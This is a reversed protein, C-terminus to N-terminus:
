KNQSNVINNIRYILVASIIDEDSKALSGSSYVLSLPEQLAAGDTSNRLYKIQKSYVPFTGPRYDQFLNTPKEDTFSTYGVPTFPILKGILTTKWFAETYRNKDIYKREDLGAITMFTSAKSEDGGYGLIYFTNNGILIPQAVVYVLIYDARLNSAALNIGNLPKDMFMKAIAAIRTQNITANDALTTRNGLTTIWYGYDWWAAIVAHKPTHKSVWDLAEIWDQTQFTYGSGGNLITPPLDASTKWSLDPPYLLPFILILITLIVYVAKVAKKRNLPNGDVINRLFYHRRPSAKVKAASVNNNTIVSFASSQKKSQLIIHTIEYLGIAALIIIGVSAYVFLRILGASVYIATIGLILAFVSLYDRRNFTIWAGLGAFTLLVSYNTFYNVLTPKSHESITATFSTQEPLFPIVANIYRFDSTYYAQTGLTGISIIAFTVLLLVVARQHNIPHILKKLFHADTLFVTGAILAIGPLGFIFSIGPRPFAATSLMTFITFIVAVYVPMTTDKRFFPILVFFLSIPISFYQAGGWSSNALGLVLGGIAAKSIVYKLEKQKFSSILLYLSILGFFLGLPESKFWGLNGRQIVAPNFAFFLASFMGATNSNSITRVLAFMIITTLSGIIVPLIITFDMLTISRGFVNYLAFTVIHLAAQSTKPIDRGEPYWSMTDKWKWYSDLGNDVLYKTARYNFYPDFENLYFGYKIPYSRM